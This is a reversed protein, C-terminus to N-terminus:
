RYTEPLAAIRAAEMADFDPEDPRRHGHEPTWSSCVDAAFVQRRHRAHYPTMQHWHLACQVVSRGHHGEPFMSSPRSYRCRLGIDGCTHRAARHSAVANPLPDMSPLWLDSM